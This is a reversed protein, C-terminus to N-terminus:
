ERFLEHDEPISVTDIYLFGANFATRKSAYNDPNTM